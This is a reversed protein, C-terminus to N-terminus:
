LGVFDLSSFFPILEEFNHYLFVAQSIGKLTTSIDAGKQAITIVPVNKAVAYGAEIGLGVGKESLDIVVIQSTQIIAFTKQMLDTPSFRQYGWKEIDRVICVTEFDCQELASSIGEILPRNRNDEYYKIGLYAKM